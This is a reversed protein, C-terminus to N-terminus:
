CSIPQLRIDPRTTCASDSAQPGQHFEGLVDEDGHRAKFRLAFGLNANERDSRNHWGRNM